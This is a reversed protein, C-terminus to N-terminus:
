ALGWFAWLPRFFWFLVLWCHGLRQALRFGLALRFACSLLYAEVRFVQLDKGSQNKKISNYHDIISQNM